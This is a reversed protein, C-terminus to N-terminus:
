TSWRTVGKRQRILHSLLPIIIYFIRTTFTNSDLKFAPSSPPLTVPIPQLSVNTVTRRKNPSIKTKMEYIVSIKELTITETKIMRSDNLYVVIGISIKCFFPALAYSVVYDNNLNM